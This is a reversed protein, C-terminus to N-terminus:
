RNIRSVGNTVFQKIEDASFLNADGEVTHKLVSSACGFTLADFDSMDNLIGYLVGAIFADGGGVRDVIDDIHYTDSATFTGNHIMYGTLDNVSTSIIDRKTSVVYQLNPFEKTLREYDAWLLGDFTLGFSDYGLFNTCDLHGASLIDVHPLIERFAKGAEEVSWLKSRYNSDYVVTIKHENCYKMCSLVVEKLNANLAVTIGSVVFVSVGDFVKDLDVEDMTLTTVSANARDYVVSSTRNGSGVELYYCGVRGNDRIIHDTEVGQYHLFRIVAEGLQHSPLKTFLSTHMGMRALNVAINTESGGIHLDFNLKEFREGKRTSYRFLPEGMCLIKM